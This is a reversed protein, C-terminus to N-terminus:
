VSNLLMVKLARTNFSATDVSAILILSWICTFYTKTQMCVVYKQWLQLLWLKWTWFNGLCNWDLFGVSMWKNFHENDHAPQKERSKITNKPALCFLVNLWSLTVNTVACWFGGAQCPHVDHTLSNVSRCIYILWVHELLRLWDRCLPVPNM